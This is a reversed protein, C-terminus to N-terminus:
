DEGKDCCPAVLASLEPRQEYLSDIADVTIPTGSVDLIKLHNLKAFAPVVDDDIACNNLYLEELQPLAYVLDSCSSNTLPTSSLNLARLNAFRHLQAFGNSTLPCEALDLRELTSESVFRLGDGTIHTHSLNLWRIGDVGKFIALDADVLPAEMGFVTDLEGAIVRAVTRKLQELNKGRHIVMVTPNRERLRFQGDDTVATFEANVEVLSPFQALHQLGDDTINNSVLSLQTVNSALRLHSLDRDTLGCKFLFLHKLSALRDMRQLAPQSVQCFALSLTELHPLRSLFCIDQETVRPVTRGQDGVVSVESLDAAGRSAVLLLPDSVCDSDITIKAIARQQGKLVWATLFDASTPRVDVKARLNSLETALNEQDRYYRVRWSVLACPLSALAFALLCWRLSVQRIM